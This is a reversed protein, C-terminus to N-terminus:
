ETFQFLCGHLSHIRIGHSTYSELQTGTVQYVMFTLKNSFVWVVLVYEAKLGVAVVTFSRWSVRCNLNVENEDLKQDTEVKHQLFQFFFMSAALPKRGCKLWTLQTLSFLKFLVACHLYLHMANKCWPRLPLAIKMSKNPLFLLTLSLCMQSIDKTNWWVYLAPRVIQTYILYRIGM